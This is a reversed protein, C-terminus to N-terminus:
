ESQLTPLIKLADERTIVKGEAQLIRIRELIGGIAPGPPLGLVNMVDEGAILKPPIVRDKQRIYRLIGDVVFARHRANFEPTIAPGLSSERDALSFLLLGLGDDGGFDRFLRYFFRDLNAAPEYLDPSFAMHHAVLLRLLDTEAKALRLKSAISSTTQEGLKEHRYFHVFGDEDTSRTAPKDIDHLLCAFRLYAARPRRGVLPRVLYDTIIPVAETPVFYGPDAAISDIIDMAALSHGLVDLHHFDNQTCGQAATLEPLLTMLTGADSMRRVTDASGSAALLLFWEEAIREPAVSWLTANRRQIADLLAPEIEFELAARFRWARLIRLPDEDLNKELVFRISKAALDKQGGFPDLLTGDSMSRAMANITFDREALSAEVGGAPIPLLDIDFGGRLVVRAIRRQEDLPVFFGNLQAALEPGAVFPDRPILFDVDKPTVGLLADRVAGGVLHSGAPLLSKLRVLLEQTDM